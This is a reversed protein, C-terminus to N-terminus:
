DTLDWGLALMLECAAEYRNDAIVAWRQADKAADLYACQKGKHFVASEGVSFGDQTILYLLTDPLIEM